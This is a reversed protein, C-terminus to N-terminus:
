YGTGLLRLVLYLLVALSALGLRSFGRPLTQRFMRGRPIREGVPVGLGRLVRDGPLARYRRETTGARDTLQRVALGLLTFGGWGWRLGLGEITKAVVLRSKAVGLSSGLM